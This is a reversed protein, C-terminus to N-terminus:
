SPWLMSGKRGTPGIPRGDDKMIAVLVPSSELPPRIRHSVQSIGGSLLHSSICAGREQAVKAFFIWRAKLTKVIEVAMVVAGM